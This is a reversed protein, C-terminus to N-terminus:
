PSYRNYIYDHLRVRLPEVSIDDVVEGAFGCTLLARAMAESIGRSQFYFIQDRPPQGVTAGHTCKVDDAFIELLPKTDITAMDSLLLNSNLQNSDTKQAGRHVYIKGSFVAHSMDSLVGKYRIRSTCNPSAHEIGTANDVLQDGEALYLGALSAEAGEGCLRTKLDNRAIKGGLVASFSQFVSSRNQHVRTSALHYGEPGEQLVKYRKLVAGDGLLTETVANNFYPGDTLGIYSEVLTLEAAEDLVILNRPHAARNRLRGTTIYIIHVPHEAGHGRKAHVVAGDHLYASNLANFVNGTEGIIRDLYQRALAGDTLVADALNYVTLNRTEGIRSAGPACFGDVFVLETWSPETFLYPEIIARELPEPTADTLAEFKGRIIPKVDTFRWDEDKHTPFPLAEFRLAGTERVQRLWEPAVHRVRRSLADLHREKDSLRDIVEAM